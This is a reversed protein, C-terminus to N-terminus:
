LEVRIKRHNLSRVLRLRMEADDLNAIVNVHIGAGAQIALRLSRSTALSCEASKKPPCGAVPVGCPRM